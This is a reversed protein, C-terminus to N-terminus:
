IMIQNLLMGTPKNLNKGTQKKNQKEPCCKQEEMQLPCKIRTEPSVGWSCKNYIAKSAGVQLLLETPTPM